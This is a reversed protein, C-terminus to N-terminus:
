PQVVIEQRLITTRRHPRNRARDRGYSSLHFQLIHTARQFIHSGDDGRAAARRERRRVLCAGNQSTPPHGAASANYAIDRAAANRYDAQKPLHVCVQLDIACAALRRAHRNPANSSFAASVAAELGSLWLPMGVALALVLFGLAGVAFATPWPVGKASAPARGLLGIGFAKIYTAFAVAVTLALGAGALAAVLRSALSSLHFGQFFTQFLYWESVFGAQPPMAAMSMAAVLAGLGFPWPSGRLIGSQVLAYSGVERYVGDATLFLAGKALAHGALHLLAVTWALGALNVLGDQRFMLAAGLLCVAISGNEASSLSLLERWGDEQFAYLATLVASSVAIAVIFIGPLSVSMQPAPPLWEVFCRSLSFFAANLIVGSLFAGTAGSGPATPALFGNTFLCSVWSRASASLFCSPSSISSPLPLAHMAAAFDAFSLSGAQNALIVFALILAVAGVELLALMFLTPKGTETGLNEGLLMVAGGLSMIEWSILFTAADQMGFVGLAGILSAAGGFIWQAQRKAPTGLWAAFIAPALGFGMLWLATPTLLFRSGRGDIGLPTWIPLTGGPLAGAALVVIALGGLGLLVRALWPQVGALGFAAAALWCLLGAALIDNTPMVDEAQSRPSRGLFMMFAGILAAPNPPCGPLYFDVPLLGDLGNSCAYGGGAVGGSVACAGVAMVWRPEPMAEYARLLPDRMAYTVPGTVLLLDAFRPSPTFFIGFRHLNYFPNNLAQLESECGNCSGADVHRIHLSRRFNDRPDAFCERSDPTTGERGFVLDSRAATGMVWDLSSTVAGTPCAEVCLQCVVCRGYDVEFSQKRGPEACLSRTPRAHRLALRAVKTAVARTLSPCESCARRVTTETPRRGLRRRKERLCGM